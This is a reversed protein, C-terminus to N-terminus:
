CNLSIGIAVICTLLIAISTTVGSTVSKTQLTPLNIESQKTLEIKNNSEINIIHNTLISSTEAKVNFCFFMSIILVLTKM